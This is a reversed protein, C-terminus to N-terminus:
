WQENGGVAAGIQLANAATKSIYLMEIFAYVYPLLGSGIAARANSGAVHTHDGPLAPSVMGSQPQTGIDTLFDAKNICGTSTNIQM